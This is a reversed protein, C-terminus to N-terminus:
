QHGADIIDAHVLQIPGSPHSPLRTQDRGFRDLILHAYTGNHAPLSDSVPVAFQRFAMDM